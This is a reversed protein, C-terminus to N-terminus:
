AARRPATVDSIEDLCAVGASRIMSIAARHRAATEVVGAANKALMEIRLEHQEPTARGWTVETGDGLAFITALLEATTELRTEEAVQQILKGVERLRKMNYFERSGYAYYDAAFYDKSGAAAAAEVGREYWEDYRPGLWKIFAKRQPGGIMVTRQGDDTTDRDWDLLSPNALWAEYNAVRQQSELDAAATRTRSMALSTAAQEAERARARRFSEVWSVVERVALERLHVAGLKRVGREALRLVDAGPNAALERAISILEDTLLNTM